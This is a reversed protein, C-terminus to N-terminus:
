CVRVSLGGEWVPTSLSRHLASPAPHCSPHLFAATSQVFGPSSHVTRPLLASTFHRSLLRGAVGASVQLYATHAASLSFASSSLPSTKLAASAHYLLPVVDLSGGRLKVTCPMAHQSQMVHKMASDPVGYPAAQQIFLTCSLCFFSHTLYKSVCDCIVLSVELALPLLFPLTSPFLIRQWCCGKDDWGAEKMKHWQLSVLDDGHREKSERRPCPLWFPLSNRQRLCLFAQWCEQQTGTSRATSETRCLLEVLAAAALGCRFHIHMPTTNYLSHM